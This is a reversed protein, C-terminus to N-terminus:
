FIEFNHNYFNTCHFRVYSDNSVSQFYMWGEENGIYEYVNGLYDIKTGIKIQDMKSEGKLKLKTNGKNTNVNYCM